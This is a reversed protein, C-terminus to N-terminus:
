NRITHDISALRTICRKNQLVYWTEYMQLKRHVPDWPNLPLHHSKSRRGKGHNYWDGSCSLMYDHRTKRQFLLLVNEFIEPSAMLSLHIPDDSKSGCLKIPHPLTVQLIDAKNQSCLPILLSRDTTLLLDGDETRLWVKKCDSVPTSDNDMTM